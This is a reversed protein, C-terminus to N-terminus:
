HHLLFFMTLFCNLGVKIQIILWKKGRTLDLADIMGLFYSIAWCIHSVIETKLKSYMYTHDSWKEKIGFFSWVTWVNDGKNWKKTLGLLFAIFMHFRYRRRINNWKKVKWQHNTNGKKDRKFWRKNQRLIFRLVYTQASTCDLSNIYVISEYIWSM